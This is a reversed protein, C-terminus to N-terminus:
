EGKFFADIVSTDMTLRRFVGAFDELLDELSLTTEQGNAQNKFTLQGSAVEKEGLTVVLRSDLKAATKFQSKLSRNLYDREAILGAGRAAQVVQTALRNAAQELCIVYVDVPEYGPLDIGEEELLLLLREMGLGFGFGSKQPGGLDEVLGSYRGGGCVTSQAGIAQDEVIFEFITEQYYDLGRVIRDDVQYPINLAQLLSQVEEFHKQSTENLYDLISPAQPLLAQDKPDKSDLVRLPNDHLRRKSDESLEDFHPEFYDILAQRYAQRATKEGLSNLHIQIGRLGLEQFFQWALAIVEVDTAPNDSGFVEVGIQNFQRQRGAQPREYRFMSGIYYLKLPQPHEPGFLKNEIYARVVPATGEPRLALRRGGKDEFDYMEKSVIDTTNGVSRAFLDYSEFLPTRIERFLYQDFLDRALDEVYQWRAVDKPLIDETGKMKQILNSGGKKFIFIARAM